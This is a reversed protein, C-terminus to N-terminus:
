KKKFNKILAKVSFSIGAFSASLPIGCLARWWIEFDTGTHTILYFAILPLLTQCQGFCAGYIAASPTNKSAIGIVAGIIIYTLPLVICTYSSINMPSNFFSKTSFPTIGIIDLVISFMAGSIFLLLSIKQSSSIRPMRM